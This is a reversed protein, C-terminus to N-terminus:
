HSGELDESRPSIAPRPTNKFDQQEKSNTPYHKTQCAYIVPKPNPYAMM